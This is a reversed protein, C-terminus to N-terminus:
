RGMNIGCKVVRMLSLKDMRLHWSAFSANQRESVRQLRKGPM